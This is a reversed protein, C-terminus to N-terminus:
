RRALRTAIVLLALLPLLLFWGNGSPPTPLGGPFPTVSGDGLLALSSWGMAPIGSEIAAVKAGKLAASVSAGRGLERYFSDFLLAAEDDRLPWRSGIVARAGAQFFARSLSLVGEGSLLSGSATRCASLVVVRGELDLEAIERAQLLGDESDSGASLIVASREPYAEDAVAHAAFHVVGYRRLGVSKVFAESAEDAVRLDSGGGLRRVLNRGEKRAHPLPGLELGRSLVASREASPSESAAPLAPDALALAPSASAEAGARRFRLWLTASPVSDLEFRAGLPTQGEPARLADFPLEHLIGDPVLVLREIGSPLAALAEAMLDRYLRIGLARETGDRRLLAGDFIEVEPTLAARDPLRLAAVGERTVVLVFAGGGFDGYLDKSLALQFALLAERPNLERRV